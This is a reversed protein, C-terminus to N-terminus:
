SLINSYAFYESWQALSEMWNKERERMCMGGVSEREWEWKIKNKETAKTLRSFSKPLHSDCGAKRSTM